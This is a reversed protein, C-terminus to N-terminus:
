ADDEDAAAEEDEVESPPQLKKVQVLSPRLLTGKFLYGRSLEQSVLGDEDPRDTPTTALADHLEPDFPKDVAEILELGSQELARNLKREVLAVGEVLANPDQGASDLSSVRALDDLPELLQKMLEAQAREATQARERETRKRFNDFEAALRLHRDELDKLEAALEEVDAPQVGEAGPAEVETQPNAPAEADERKLDESRSEPGRKRRKKDATM